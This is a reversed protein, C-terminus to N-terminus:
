KPPPSKVLENPGCWPTGLNEETFKRACESITFSPKFELQGDDNSTYFIWYRRGDRSRAVIYWVRSDVPQAERALWFSAGAEDQATACQWASQFPMGLRVLGCSQADKGVLEVLRSAIIKADRDSGTEALVSTGVVLVCFGAAVLSVTSRHFMM